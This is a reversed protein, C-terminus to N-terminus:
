TEYLPEVPSVGFGQAFDVKIRRLHELAADSEVYEAITKSGMSHCRSNIETVQDLPVSVVNVKVFEPVLTKLLDFCREGGDFGALTFCCGHPRLEAMLRRLSEPHELANGCTVEFALAGNSLYSDDVYKRVYEGFHPDALTQASLNVNSRSKEANPKIALVGRVWRALRNVVWRDLYPLLHSEELITFFAGPPLLKADEEKFRVFIEQFLGPERQSAIPIITQAYLVFEGQQLASVLRDAFGKPPKHTIAM